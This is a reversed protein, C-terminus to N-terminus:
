AWGGRRRMVEDYIRSFDSPTWGPYHQERTGWEDDPAGEAWAAIDGAALMWMSPNSVYKDITDQMQKQTVAM